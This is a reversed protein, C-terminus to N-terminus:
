IILSREHTTEGAHILACVASSVSGVLFLSFAEVMKLLSQINALLLSLYLGPM